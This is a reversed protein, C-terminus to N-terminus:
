CPRSSSIARTASAGAAPRSRPARPSPTASSRRWPTSAARMPSRVWARHRRRPRRRGEAGERVDVFKDVFQTTSRRRCWSAPRRRRLGPRRQPVQQRGADEGGRRCRRRRVRDGARPRRAGHHRAEHAAGALAALQKGVATSGTFSIKRIVPHPILYTSIEAPVGFVLNVVGAPVGADVFADVLQPAALGADGGAGQHHDLLRRRAGGVDQAGGPQDPFEVAHLGRGARGAGQDRAPLRRRRAGPHHPWLHPPRGRRVLRHHRRRGADRVKAEALPKGQEMTMIRARDRRRPQAPHRRGQADAQLARLGLGQALDRLGERRRRARPRPRGARCPRGDGIAEGTAPNIVPITKGSRAAQWTGDIFLQVDSYM